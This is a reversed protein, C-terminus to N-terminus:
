LAVENFDKRLAGPCPGFLMNPNTISAPASTPIERVAGPHRARLEDMDGFEIARVMCADVCVPNHGAERLAKCTDCKEIMHTNPNYQPAVYPCVTVCSRCVVCRDDNHQVTDDDSVFMAGTPCASVCAPKECHNCSMVTHFLDVDPYVGCEYTDVRRLRPGVIQIDRRDKCAVQCTRCGICRQLDVYFGNPM